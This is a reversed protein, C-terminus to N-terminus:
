HEPALLVRNTSLLLRECLTPLARTPAPPRTWANCPIVGTLEGNAAGTSIVSPAGSDSAFATAKAAKRRKRKLIGLRKRSASLYGLIKESLENCCTAQIEWGFGDGHFPVDVLARSPHGICMLAEISSRLDIAVSATSEPDTVPQPRELPVEDIKVRVQIGKPEETVTPCPPQRHPRPRTAGSTIFLMDPLGADGRTALFEDPASAWTLGFEACFTPYSLIKAEGFRVPSGKLMVVNEGTDVYVPRSAGDFSRKRQNWVYRDGRGHEVVFGRSQCTTCGPTAWLKGRM